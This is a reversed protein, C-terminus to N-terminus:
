KITKLQNTYMKVIKQKLNMIRVNDRIFFCDKHTVYEMGSNTSYKINAYNLNIFTRILFDYDECGEVKSDYFGIKNIAKHSWM